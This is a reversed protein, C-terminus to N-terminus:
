RRYRRRLIHHRTQIYVSILYIWHRLFQQLIDGRPARTDGMPLISKLPRGHSYATLRMNKAYAWRELNRVFASLTRYISGMHRTRDIHRLLDRKTISPRAIAAKMESIYREVKDHPLSLWQRKTDYVKGLWQQTQSPPKSKSDKTRLSLSQLIKESHRFQKWAIDPERHGGLIDDLYHFILAITTIDDTVHIDSGQMFNDTNVSQTSASVYYINQRDSKIAWLPFHMFDTFLKPSSSSGMPLRAFFYIRGDFVFGLKHVDDPHVSVNYYGDQLDKAWLWADKGMAQVTEVVQKTQADEVTCLQPDLKENISFVM